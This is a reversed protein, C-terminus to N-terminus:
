CQEVEQRCLCTFTYQLFCPYVLVQHIYQVCLCLKEWGGHIFPFLAMLVGFFSSISSKYSLIIFPLFSCAKYLFSSMQPLTAFIDVMISPALFNLCVLGYCFFCGLKQMFLTFLSRLLQVQIVSLDKFGMRIQVSGYPFGHHTFGVGQTTSGPEPLSGMDQIEMLADGGMEETAMIATSVFGSRAIDEGM